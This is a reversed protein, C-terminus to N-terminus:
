LKICILSSINRPRTETDGTKQVANNEWQLGIYNMSGDVFAKTYQIAFVPTVPSYLANSIVRGVAHNHEKFADAQSSGLLRGSDVNRGNDWGRDFEGRCDFVPLRKGAAFDSLASAGRVSAAGTSDQIPLIANPFDNWLLIYLAQVDVNARNTAGSLANGITGGNAAVWGSPVSSRFFSGRTGTPIINGVESRPILSAIGSSNFGVLTDANQNKLKVIELTADAVKANTVVGSGLLDANNITDLFALDGLMANTSLNSPDTGINAAAASGMGLLTRITNIDATNALYMGWNRYLEIWQNNPADYYFAIMKNVTDLLATTGYALRIKGTGSQNHRITVPRAASYAKVFIVKSGINDNAIRDLDDSAGEDETDVLMFTSAQPTAVGGFIEIMEPTAGVALQSVFDYLSGIASQFNAETTIGSTLWSKTPLETSM